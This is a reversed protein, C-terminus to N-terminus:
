KMFGTPTTYYYLFLTIASTSYAALTTGRQRFKAKRFHYNPSKFRGVCFHPANRKTRGMRNLINATATTKPNEATTKLTLM